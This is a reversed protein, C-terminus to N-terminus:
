GALSKLRAEFARSWAAAGVTDVLDGGLTLKGNEFRAMLIYEYTIEEGTYKFKRHGRVHAVAIDNGVPFLKLMEDTATEIVLGPTSMFEQMQLLGYTSRLNGSVDFGNYRVNPAFLALYDAPVPGSHIAATASDEGYPGALLRKLLPVAKNTEM